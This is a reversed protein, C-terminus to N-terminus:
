DGTRGASDIRGRLQLARQAQRLRAVAQAIANRVSDESTVDTEIFIADGGAARVWAETARGLEPKLEAIVIKAGELAFLRAAARRSERVRAPSSLSKEM